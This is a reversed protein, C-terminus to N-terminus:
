VIETLKEEVLADIKRNIEVNETRLAKIAQLIEELIDVKVLKSKSIKPESEESKPEETIAANRGQYNDFCKQLNEKTTTTATKSKTKKNGDVCTNMRGSISKIDAMKFLKEDIANIKNFKFVLENLMPHEGFSDSNITTLKNSYVKLAELNVLNKFVNPPLDEIKNDGISLDRLKTLKEFLKPNLTTLKNQSLKLIELNQLNDFIGVPLDKLKNYGLHM